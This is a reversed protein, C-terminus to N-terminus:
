SRRRGVFIIYLTIFSIFLTYYWFYSNTFNINSCSVQLRMATQRSVEDMVERRSPRRSKRLGSQDQDQAIGKGRDGGRRSSSM